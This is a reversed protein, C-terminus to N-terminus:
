RSFPRHAIHVQARVWDSASYFPKRKKAPVQAKFLQDSTDHHLDSLRIVEDVLDKTLTTAVSFIDKTM